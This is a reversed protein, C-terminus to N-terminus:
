ARYLHIEAKDIRSSSRASDAPSELSRMEIVILIVDDFSATKFSQLPHNELFRHVGHQKFLRQELLTSRFPDM